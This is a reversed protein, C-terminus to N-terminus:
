RRASTSGRARAVPGTSRWRTTAITSPDSAASRSAARSDACGRPRTPRTTPSRRRWRSAALPRARDLDRGPPRLLPDPDAPRRVDAELRAPAAARLRRARQRVAEVGAAAGAASRPNGEGRRPPPATTTTREEDSGGCGALALTLSLISALAAAAPPEVDAAESPPPTRSRGPPRRRSQTTAAAVTAWAGCRIRGGPQRGRPAARPARDGDRLMAPHRRARQRAAAAGADPRGPRPARAGRRRGRPIESM